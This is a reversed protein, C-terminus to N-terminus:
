TRTQYSLAHSTLKELHDRPKITHSESIFMMFLQVCRIILSQIHTCRTRIHNNVDGVYAYCWAWHNLVVNKCAVVVM